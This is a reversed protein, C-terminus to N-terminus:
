YIFIDKACTYRHTNMCVFILLFLLASLSVSICVSLYVSASLCYCLWFCALSCGTRLFLSRLPLCALRSGPLHAPLSSVLSLRFNMKLKCSLLWCDCVVTKLSKGRIEWETFSKLGIASAWGYQSPHSGPILRDLILKVGFGQSCGSFFSTVYTYLSLFLLLSGDLSCIISPMMQCAISLGHPHISGHGWECPM